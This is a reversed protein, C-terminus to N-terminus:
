LYQYIFASVEEYYQYDSDDDDSESPLQKYYKKRRRLIVRKRIAPVVRNHIVSVVTATSVSGVLAGAVAGVGIGLPAGVGLTPVGVLIGGIGAGVGAGVVGGAAAGGTASKVVSKVKVRGTLLLLQPLAETDCKRFIEKQLDEMWNKQNPLDDTVYQGAPIARINNSSESSEDIKIDPESVKIKVSAKDLCKEFNETYNKILTNYDNNNKPDKSVSNAFTLVLIARKWIQKGFAKTLNKIIKKDTDGIKGTPLLSACYILLDAKGKSKRELDLLIESENVDLSDFGPTDLIQITVRGVKVQQHRTVHQTTARGDHGTTAADRGKLELINNLLTSKGAGSRGALAIVIPRDPNGSMFDSFETSDVKDASGQMEIEERYDEM